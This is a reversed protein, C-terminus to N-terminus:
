RLLNDVKYDDGITIITYSQNSLKYEDIWFSNLYDIYNDSLNNYYFIAKVDENVLIDDHTIFVYDCGISKNFCIKKNDLEIENKSIVLNDVKKKNIISTNSIDYNYNMFQYDIYDTFIKTKELINKDSIYDLLYLIYKDHYKILLSISDDLALTVIGIEQDSLKIDVKNLDNNAIKAYVICLNFLLLIIIIGVKKM